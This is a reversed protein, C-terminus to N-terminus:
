PHAGQTTDHPASFPKSMAEPQVGHRWMAWKVYRSVRCTPHIKRGGIRCLRQIYNVSWGTRRAALKQNGWLCVADLAKAETASLKWPSITMHTMEQSKEAQHGTHQNITM